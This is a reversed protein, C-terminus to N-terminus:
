GDGVAKAEKGSTKTESPTPKQSNNRESVAAALVNIAEVCTEHDAGCAQVVRTRWWHRLFEIAQESTM